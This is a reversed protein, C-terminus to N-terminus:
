APTSERSALASALTTQDDTHERQLFDGPAGNLGTEALAQGDASGSSMSPSQGCEDGEDGDEDGQISNHDGELINGNAPNGNVDRRVLSKIFLAPQKYTPQM